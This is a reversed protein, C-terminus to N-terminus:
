QTGALIAHATKGRLPVHLMQAIPVSILMHLGCVLVRHFHHRYIGSNTWITNKNRFMFIILRQYWYGDFVSKGAFRVIGLVM